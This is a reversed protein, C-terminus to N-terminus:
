VPTHRELWSTLVQMFRVPEEMLFFHSSQEFWAVEAQPLRDIMWQTALPGCIPDLSGAM